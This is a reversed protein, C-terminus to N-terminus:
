QRPWKREPAQGLQWDVHEPPPDAIDIVHEARFPVEAGHCLYSNGGPEISQPETDLIGIYTDGVREAVIVWMREGQVLVRGDEETGEIDFILKAAQGRRLNRRAALPPTWFTDPHEEHSREASRLEWFDPDLEALRM